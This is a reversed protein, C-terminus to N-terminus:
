EAPQKRPRGGARTKRMAAIERYYDPGREATKQGGMAGLVSPAQETRVILRDVYRIATELAKHREEASDSAIAQNVLRRVTQLDKVNKAPSTSM